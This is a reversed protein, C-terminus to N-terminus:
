ANGDLSRAVEIGKPELWGMDVTVGYDYWGKDSWKYLLYCARKENMNLRAIVDRVFETESKHLIALLLAKEDPKM